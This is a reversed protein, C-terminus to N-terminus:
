VATPRKKHQKVNKNVFNDDKKNNRLLQRSYYLTGDRLQAYQKLAEALM